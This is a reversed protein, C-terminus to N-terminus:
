QYYSLRIVSAVMKTLDVNTERINRAALLCRASTYLVYCNRSRPGPLFFFVFFDMNTLRLRRVSTTPPRASMDGITREWSVADHTSCRKVTSYYERPSTFTIRYERPFIRRFYPRTTNEPPTGRYLRPIWGRRRRRRRRHHCSARAYAPTGKVIRSSPRTGREGERGTPRAGHYILQCNVFSSATTEGRSRRNTRRGRCHSRGEILIVLRPAYPLIGMNQNM